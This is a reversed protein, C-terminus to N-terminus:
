IIRVSVGADRPTTSSISAITLEEFRAIDGDIWGAVEMDNVHLAPVDLFERWIALIEQRDATWRRWQPWSNTNVTIAIDIRGATGLDM